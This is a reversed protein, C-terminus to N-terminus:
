EYIKKGNNLMDIFKAMKDARNKTNSSHLRILIAYRNTSNLQEFYAKAKINENLLMAFDEPVVISSQPAYAADWKGNKKAAEIAVMGQPKMEGIDILLLAKEKNILSWVSNKGRLTFRQIWSKEDYAKKLGDIWGYCLAVTLAQNYTISQLDSKKKAIRMWIGKSQVGKLDLWERWESENEFLLIPLDVDM